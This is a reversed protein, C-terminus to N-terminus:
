CYDVMMLGHLTSPGAVLAIYSLSTVFVCYANTNQRSYTDYNAIYYGCGALSGFLLLFTALRSKIHGSDNEKNIEPMESLLAKLERMDASVEDSERFEASLAKAKRQELKKSM